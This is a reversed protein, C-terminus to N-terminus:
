ECEAIRSVQLRLFYDMFLKEVCLDGDEMGGGVQIRFWHFGISCLWYLKRNLLYGM